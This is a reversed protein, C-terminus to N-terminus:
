PRLLSLLPGVPSPIPRGYPPQPSSPQQPGTIQAPPYCPPPKPSHGLRLTGDLPSRGPPGDKTTCTRCCNCQRAMGPLPPTPHPPIPHPPSKKLPPNLPTPPSRSLLGFDRSCSAPDIHLLLVWPLGGTHEDCWGPRAAQRACCISNEFGALEGRAAAGCGAPAPHRVTAQLTCIISNNLGSLERRAAAWVLGPGSAPRRGASHLHYLIIVL